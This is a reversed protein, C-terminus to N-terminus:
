RNSFLRGPLNSTFSQARKLHAESAQAAGDEDGALIREAILRHEVNSKQLVESDLARSTQLMILPLRMQRCLDSLRVNGSADAIAQHFAKNESLYSMGSSREGPRWICEIAQEFAAKVGPKAQEALRPSFVGIEVGLGLAFRAATQLNLTCDTPM